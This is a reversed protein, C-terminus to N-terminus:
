SWVDVVIYTCKTYYHGYVDEQDHAKQMIQMEYTYEIVSRGVETFGKGCLFPSSLVSVEVVPTVLRWAM